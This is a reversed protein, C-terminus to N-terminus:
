SSLLFRLVCYTEVHLIVGLKLRGQIQTVSNGVSSHCLDPTSTAEKYKFFCVQHQSRESWRAPHLHIGAAPHLLHHLAGAKGATGGHM